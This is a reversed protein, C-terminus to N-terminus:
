RPTGDAAAGTGPIPWPFSGRALNGRLIHALSATVGAAKDAEAMQKALGAGRPFVALTGFLAVVQDLCERLQDSNTVDTLQGGFPEGDADVVRVPFRRDEGSESITATALTTM